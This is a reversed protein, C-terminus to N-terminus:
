MLVIKIIKILKLNRSLMGERHRKASGSLLVEM